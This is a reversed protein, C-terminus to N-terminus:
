KEINIISGNSTKKINIKNDIRSKLESVHSIIGILRNDTSLDYLTELAQELSDSDLSGFGEDIFMTEVVIGGAYNQITDSLGLALALSTKFSEGGSLSKVGRKKGTYHDIIELELSVKDNLNKSESKRILEFQGNTMLELRLNSNKIVENFYSAQVFHEFLIKSKGNINGNATDSLKKYNSYDKMIEEIEIKKKVVSNYVKKNNDFRIFVENSMSNREEKLKEYKNTYESLDTYKQDKLKVNLNSIENTTLNYDNFYDNVEKKLLKIEDDDYNIEPKKVTSLEKILEDKIQKNNEIDKVVVDYKAKNENLANNYNNYKSENEEDLKITNFLTDYELNTNYIQKELAEISAINNKINNIINENNKVNIKYTDLLKKNNDNNKVKNYLLNLDVNKEKLESLELNIKQKDFKNLNSNIINLDNVNKNRTDNLNDLIIKQKDLEEKSLVDKILSAKNPHITSGCVLCPCDDKLEKALIGAQNCLFKNEEDIFKKNFETYKKISDQLKFTLNEKEKELNNIENLSENLENLRKERIEKEQKAKEYIVLSNDNLIEKELCEIKDLLENNDNIINKNSENYLKLEDIKLKIKKNNSLKELILKNTHILNKLDELCNYKDNLNNLLDNYNLINEEYKNRELEKVKIINIVENYRKFIPKYIENDEINLKIKTKNEYDEKLKKLLENKTELLKIDNNITKKIEIDKILIEIETDLQLAKNKEKECILEDEKNKEELLTIIEDITKDEIDVDWNIHSIENELISAKGEYLKKTTLYKEKLKESVDFFLSTDFIKRFIKSREDSDAFLLKLFEGQAIMSIQKFQKVDIGLIENIKSTVDKVGTIIENDDIVLTADAVTKTKRGEKKYPVNRKVFYKKNKHNFTFEVFTDIDNKSYDSRLAEITRNAGSPQNYLAFCIADFISTKGAGTDGTILFIGNTGLLTFDIFVEDKYPGFASIKLNIPKM